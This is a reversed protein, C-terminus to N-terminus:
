LLIDVLLGLLRKVEARREDLTMAVVVLNAPVALPALAPLPLPPPPALAVLPAVLAVVLAPLAPALPALTGAALNVAAAALRQMFDQLFNQDSPPPPSFGFVGRAAFGGRGVFLGNLGVALVNLNFLGALSAFGGLGSPGAGGAAGAPSGGFGAAGVPSGGFGASGGLGQM